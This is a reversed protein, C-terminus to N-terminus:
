HPSTRFKRRCAENVAKSGSSSTSCVQSNRGTYQNAVLAMTVHLIVAKCCSSLICDCLLKISLLGSDHLSVCMPFLATSLVAQIDMDMSAPLWSELIGRQRRCSTTTYNSCYVDLRSRISLSMLSRLTLLLRWSRGFKWVWLYTPGTTKRSLGNHQIYLIVQM